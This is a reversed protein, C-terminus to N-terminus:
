PRGKGPGALPQVIFQHVLITAPPATELLAAAARRDLGNWARILNTRCQGILQGAAAQAEGGPACRAAFAAISLLSRSYGHIPLAPDPRATLSDPHVSRFYLCDPLCGARRALVTLAFTWYNDEYAVGEDFRLGNARVLERRAMQMCASVRYEGSALLLRLLRPGAFAGEYRHTRRYYTELRSFAVALPSGPAPECGAELFSSGGFFVLDLDHEALHRVCRTVTVPSVYDDADCFYLYHGTAVDLGHNRAAGLGSQSQTVVTIRDDRAAWGAARAPSADVSGDDVCIIELDAETQATLSALCRDLTLAENHFPVVISVLPTV